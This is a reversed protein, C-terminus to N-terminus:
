CQIGDLRHIVGATINGSIGRNKIHNDDFLESWEDGDTISNGLFIIDDKSQPLTNFHTVRQWYYTPFLSDSYSPLQIQAFVFHHLFLLSIATIVRKM